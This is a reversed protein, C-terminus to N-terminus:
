PRDERSVFGGAALAVPTPTSEPPPPPQGEAHRLCALTVAVLAASPMPAAERLPAAVVQRLRRGAPALHGWGEPLEGPRVVDRPAVLWWHHCHQAWEDAKSPDRLERLWDGRSVKVEFGHIALYGRQYDSVPQSRYPVAVSPYTANRDLAIADAIRTYGGAWSRPPQVHHGVLYRQPYGPTQKPSYRADLMALLDAETFGRDPPTGFLDTM